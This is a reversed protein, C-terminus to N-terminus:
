DAGPQAQRIVDERELREIEDQTLGCELLVEHSHEGLAPALRRIKGPTRSFRVPVGVM